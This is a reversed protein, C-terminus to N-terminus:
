KILSVKGVINKEENRVDTYIIKYIYIGLQVFKGNYKGDWGQELNRTIFLKEGWRNYIIMEFQKINVGYAKFQDNIGNSNPTFSNPIWIFSEDCPVFEVRLTSVNSCGRRDYVFIFLENISDNSWRISLINSNQSIIEGGQVVYEYQYTSDTEINYVRTEIGFCDPINHIQQSMSVVPNLFLFLFLIWKM